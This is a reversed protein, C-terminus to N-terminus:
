HMGRVLWGLPVEEQIYKVSQWATGVSPAYYTTLLIGTVVQLTFAFLLLSGFAATWRSGGKIPELLLKEYLERWGVRSGFVGGGEFTSTEQPQSPDTTM